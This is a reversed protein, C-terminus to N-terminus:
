LNQVVANNNQRPLGSPLGRLWYHHSNALLKVVRIDALVCGSLSPRKKSIANDYLEDTTGAVALAKKRAMEFFRETAIMAFGIIAPDDGRQEIPAAFSYECSYVKPVSYITHKLICRCLTISRPM